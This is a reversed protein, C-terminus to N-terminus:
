AAGGGGGGDDDYLLSGTDGCVRIGAVGLILESVRPTYGPFSRLGPDYSELQLRSPVLAAEVGSRFTFADCPDIGALSGASRFAVEVSDYYSVPSAMRLVLDDVGVSRAACVCRFGGFGDFVLDPNLARSDELVAYGRVVGLKRDGYACMFEIGAGGESCMSRLTGIEDLPLEDDLLAGDQGGRICVEFAYDCTLNSFYALAALGADDERWNEDNAFASLIGDVEAKIAGHLGDDMESSKFLLDVKDPLFSTTMETMEM